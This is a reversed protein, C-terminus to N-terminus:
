EQQHVDVDRDVYKRADRLEMCNVGENLNTAENNLSECTTDDSSNTSFDFSQHKKPVPAAVYPAIISVPVEANRTINPINADAPRKSTTTQKSPKPTCTVPVM